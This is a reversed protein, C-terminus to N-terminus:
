ARLGLWALLVIATAIGVYWPWLQFAQWYFFGALFCAFALVSPLRSPREVYMIHPAGCDSRPGHRAPKRSLGSLILALLLVLLSVLLVTQYM